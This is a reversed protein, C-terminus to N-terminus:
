GGGESAELVPRPLVDGRASAVIVALLALAFPLLSLLWPGARWKGPNDILVMLALGMLEVACAVTAARLTRAQRRPVDRLSLTLAFMGFFWSGGLASIWIGLAVRSATLTALGGITGATGM